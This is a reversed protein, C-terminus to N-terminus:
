PAPGRARGGPRRTFVPVRGTTFDQSTQLVECVERAGLCVALGHQQWMRSAPLTLTVLLTVAAANLRSVCCVRVCMGGRLACIVTQAAAFARAVRWVATGEGDMLGNACQSVGDALMEVSAARMWATERVSPKPM